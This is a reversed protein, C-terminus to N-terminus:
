SNGNVMFYPPKKNDIHINKDTNFYEEILIFRMQNIKM